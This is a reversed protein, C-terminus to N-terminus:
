LQLLKGHDWVLVASGGPAMIYAFVFQAHTVQQKICKWVSSHFCLAIDKMKVHTSNAILIILFFVNIM